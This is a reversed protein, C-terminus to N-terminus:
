RQWWFYAPDQEREPQPTALFAPPDDEGALHSPETSRLGPQLFLRNRLPYSLSWPM